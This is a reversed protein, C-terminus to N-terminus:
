TTLTNLLGQLVMETAICLLVFGPLKAAACSGSADAM